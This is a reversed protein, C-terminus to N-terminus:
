SKSKMFKVTKDAQPCVPLRLRYGISKYLKNITSSM